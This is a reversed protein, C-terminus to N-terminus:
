SMNKKNEEPLIGVTIGGAKKAGKSAAHMVGINRGGTLLTLQFKGVAQGIQFADDTNIDLATEGPGIIGIILKNMRYNM